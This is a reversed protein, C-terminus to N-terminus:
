DINEVLYKVGNIEASAGAKLGILKMGLPSQPSIIMVANGEVSIRGLAISLFLYGKNTRVLSGKVIQPSILGADIKELLAKQEEFEKLQKGITEQEIQIMARATEHKDGASSKTDSAASKSLERVVTQLSAIKNNLLQLCHAHVKQKLASASM